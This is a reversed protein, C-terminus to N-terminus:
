WDPMAEGAKRIIERRPDVQEAGNQHLKNNKAKLEDELVARIVWARFTAAANKGNRIRKPTPEKDIWADLKEVCQNFFNLDHNDLFKERESETLWVNQTEGYCFKEPVPARERKEKVKKKSEIEKVKEKSEIEKVKSQTSINDNVVTSRPKHICKSQQLSYIDDIVRSSRRETAKLWRDQIAKSTLISHQEHICKDFLTFNICVNIISSVEEESVGLQGALVANQMDDWKIFYGNDFIRALLRLFVLEGLNGHKSRLAFIKPDNCYDCDLPFYDLGTKEPRSM